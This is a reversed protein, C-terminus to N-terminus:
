VNPLLVSLNINFIKNIFVYGSLIVRFDGSKLLLYM